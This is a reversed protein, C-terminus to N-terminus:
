KASSLTDLWAEAEAKNAFMKKPMGSEKTIRTLQAKMLVNESVVEATGILGADTIKKQSAEFIKAWETSITKVQTLDVLITFGPSVLKLTKEWGEASTPVDAAKQWFGMMSYYIRNKTQDVALKMFANNTIETM